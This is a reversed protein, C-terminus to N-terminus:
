YVQREMAENTQEIIAQWVNRTFTQYANAAAALESRVWAEETEQNTNCRDYVYRTGEALAQNAHEIRQIQQDTHDITNGYLGVLQKMDEEAQRQQHVLARVWVAPNAIQSV